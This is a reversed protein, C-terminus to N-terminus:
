KIGFCGRFSMSVLELQTLSAFTSALMLFHKGMLKKCTLMIFPLNDRLLCYSLESAVASCTLLLTLLVNNVNCFMKFFPIMKALSSYM